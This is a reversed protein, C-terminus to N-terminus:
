ASRRRAAMVGLGLMAFASLLLTAPEPVAPGSSLVVLDFPAVPAGLSTSVQNVTLYASLAALNMGTPFVNGLSNAGVSSAFAAESLEGAVSTKVGALIQAHNGFAFSNDGNKLVYGIIGSGDVDLIVEGTAADYILDPINPDGAEAAGLGSGDLGSGDLPGTFATFQALIDTVDVDEDGDNDGQAVTRGFTPPTPDVNPGSFNTFSSLIDTVDIDDDGDTDGQVGVSRLDDLAFYLPTNPGFGGIDTTTLGFSLETADQLSSIDVSTWTDVVYDLNNDVFRYDALYFDVTGVAGGGNSGTITLIFTDPDDGSPGGFQKAFADGNLMSLATYTANTIDVQVPKEGAPVQVVPAVGGGFGIVYNDSGGSGSGSYGSYQNGFGVTTTDTKSSTAWGGWSFFSFAADFSGEVNFSAGQSVHADVYSDGPNMSGQGAVNEGDPHGNDFSDASLTVDELDVITAQALPAVIFTLLALTLLATLPLTNIM